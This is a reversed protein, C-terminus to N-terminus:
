DDARAEFGHPYKLVFGRGERVLSGLCQVAEQNDHAQIAKHYEEDGLELRVKCTREDVFSLVTVRGTPSGEERELKVVPGYLEFDERSSTQRFLRAAEEIVPVSDPPFMVRSPIDGEIPRSRSWSFGIEVGRDGEESTGLGRIADCLNASVGAPVAREFDQFDGTAAANGAAQKAAAVAKCLTATVQREYPEELEFLHGSEPMRLVPPVRSIVTVVYSGRETQGMRVRKLYDEAQNPRRTPFVARREIAACAGAMMLDRARQVLRAGEDIAITGDSEEAHIVRLRVTDASSTQLDKLIELQSRDEVAELTHLADAMRLVFDKLDRTLPLAIEFGGDREWISWRDESTRVQRWGMTRLYAVFELPRIATLADRDQVSAKM